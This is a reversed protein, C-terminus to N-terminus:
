MFLKELEYIQQSIMYCKCLCIRQSIYKNHYWTVNVYVIGEVWVKTTIDRLMWMFLNELEYIQQSIMYCKCLCLRQSMYLQQSIMYCESLCNRRSMYKNHQQTVNVYIFLKVLEVSQKATIYCECLCIRWSLVKSHYWTVNVYVFEGVWINTTIVWINTTIDHLM